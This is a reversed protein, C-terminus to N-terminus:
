AQVARVDGIRLEGSEFADSVLLNDFLKPLQVFLTDADRDGTDLACMGFTDYVDTILVWVLVADNPALSCLPAAVQRKPLEKSM